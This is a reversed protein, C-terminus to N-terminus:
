GRVQTRVLRLGSRAECDRTGLGSTGHRDFEAQASGLVCHRMMVFAGCLLVAVARLVAVYRVFRQVARELIVRVRGRARWSDTEGGVRRLPCARRAAGFGCCVRFPGWM